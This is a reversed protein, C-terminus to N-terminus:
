TGFSRHFVGGVEVASGLTLLSFELPSIDALVVNSIAPYLETPSLLMEEEEIKAEDSNMIAVGNVGGVGVANRLAPTGSGDCISHTMQHTEPSSGLFFVDNIGPLHLRAIRRGGMLTRLALLRLVISAVRPDTLSWFQARQHMRSALYPLLPALAPFRPIVSRGRATDALVSLDDITQELSWALVHRCLMARRFERFLLRAQRRLQVRM